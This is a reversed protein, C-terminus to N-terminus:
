NIFDFLIRILLLQKCINKSILTRSFEAISVPFCTHQLKKKIFNCAQSHKRHINHFKISCKRHSSRVFLFYVSSLYVFSFYVFSSYVFPFYVFSFYVSSSYVSSFYVFPFLHIFIIRISLIYIFVIRIFLICIFFISIFFPYQFTQSYFFTHSHFFIIRIILIRIFLTHVSITYFSFCGEFTKLLVFRFTCRILYFLPVIPYYTHVILYLNPIRNRAICNYYPQM